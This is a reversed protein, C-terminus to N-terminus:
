SADWRVTIHTCDLSSSGHGPLTWKKGRAVFPSCAPQSLHLHLCDLHRFYPSILGAMCRNSSRMHIEGRNIKHILNWCLMSINIFTYVLCVCTCVNERLRRRCLATAQTMPCLCKRQHCLWTIFNVDIKSFASMQWDCQVKMYNQFASFRKQTPQLTSYRHSTLLVSSVKDSMPSTRRSSNGRMEPQALQGAPVYTQGKLYLGGAKWVLAQTLLARYNEWWVCLWLLLARVVDSLDWCSAPGHSWGLCRVINGFRGQNGTSWWTQKKVCQFISEVAGLLIFVWPRQQWWHHQHLKICACSGRKTMSSQLCCHLLGVRSKLFDSILEFNILLWFPSFLSTFGCFGTAKILIHFTSHM